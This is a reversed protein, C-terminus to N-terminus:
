KGIGDFKTELKAKEGFFKDIASNSIYFHPVLNLELRGTLFRFAIFSIKLWNKIKEKLGHANGGEHSTDSQQDERVDVAQHTTPGGLCFTSAM